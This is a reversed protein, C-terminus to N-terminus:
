KIVEQNPQKFNIKIDLKKHLTLPYYPQAARPASAQISDLLLNIASVLAFPTITAIDAPNVPVCFFNVCNLLFNAGACKSRTEIHSLLLTIQLTSNPTTSHSHSIPLSLSVESIGGSLSYGPLFLNLFFQVLIDESSGVVIQKHLYSCSPGSTQGVPDESYPLELINYFLYNWSNSSVGPGGKEGRVQSSLRCPCASRTNFLIARTDQAKTGFTRCISM